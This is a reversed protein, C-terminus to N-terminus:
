LFLSTPRHSKTASCTIRIPTNITKESRTELSNTMPLSWGRTTPFSPDAHNFQFLIERTGRIATPHQASISACYAPNLATKTPNPSASSLTLQFVSPIQSCSHRVSRQSYELAPSCVKIQSYGRKKPYDVPIRPITRADSSEFPINMGSQNDARLM